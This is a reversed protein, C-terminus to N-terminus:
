RKHGGRKRSAFFPLVAYNNNKNNNNASSQFYYANNQSNQTRPATPKSKVTGRPSFALVRGKDCSIARKAHVGM